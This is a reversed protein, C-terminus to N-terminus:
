GSIWTDHTRRDSGAATESLLRWHRAVVKFDVNDIRPTDDTGTTFMAQMIPFRYHKEFTGSGEFWALEWEGDSLEVSLGPSNPAANSADYDFREPTGLLDNYGLGGDQAGYIVPPGLINTPHATKTSTGEM